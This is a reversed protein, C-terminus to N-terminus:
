LMPSRVPAPRSAAASASPTTKEGHCGVVTASWAPVAERWASTRAGTRSRCWAVTACSAMAQSSCREGTMSGMGPVEARIVELVVEGTGCDAEGACFHM